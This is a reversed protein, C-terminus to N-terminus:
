CEKARRNYDFELRNERNQPQATAAGSTRAALQPESFRRGPQNTTPVEGAKQQKPVYAPRASRQAAKRSDNIIANPLCISIL